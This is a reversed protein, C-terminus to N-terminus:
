NERNCIYMVSLILKKCKYKCYIIYIVFTAQMQDINAILTENSSFVYIPSGNRRWSRASFFEACTHLALGLNIASNVSLARDRHLFNALKQNQM